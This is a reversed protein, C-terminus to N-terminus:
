PQGLSAVFRDFQEKQYRLRHEKIVLNGALHKLIDNRFNPADVAMSAATAEDVHYLAEREAQSKACAEIDSVLQKM